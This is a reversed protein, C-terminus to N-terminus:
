LLPSRTTFFFRKETSCITATSFSASSPVGAASSMLFTPM